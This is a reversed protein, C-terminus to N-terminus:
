VAATVPDADRSLMPAHNEETVGQITHPHGDGGVEGVLGKLVRVHSLDPDLGPRLYWTGGKM